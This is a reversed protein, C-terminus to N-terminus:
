LLYAIKFYLSSSGFFSEWTISWTQFIGINLRYPKANLYIGEFPEMKNAKIKTNHDNEIMKSMSCLIQWFILRHFKSRFNQRNVPKMIQSDKQFIYIDRSTWMRKLHFNQHMRLIVLGTQPCLEIDFSSRKIKKAFARYYTLFTTFHDYSSLLPRPFSIV